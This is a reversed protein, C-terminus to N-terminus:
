DNIDDDDGGGSFDDDTSSYDSSGGSDSSEKSGGRNLIDVDDIAIEVTTIKKDGVEMTRSTLKGEISVLQGKKIIKALGEARKGWITARLWTTRTQQQGDKDKYRENVAVSIPLFSTGNNTTKLEPTQGVNGTIQVKNRTSM